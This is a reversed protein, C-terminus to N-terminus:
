PDEDLPRVMGIETVEVPYGELSDPIADRVTDAPVSVGVRVCPEGGCLGQGVSVVGDIGMLHDTHVRLVDEISRQSVSDEAAPSEDVQQGGGCAGTAALALLLVFPLVVLQYKM